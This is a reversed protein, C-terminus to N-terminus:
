AAVAALSGPPLKYVQMLEDVARDVGGLGPEPQPYSHYESESVLDNVLSKMDAHLHLQGPAAYMSLEPAGGRALAFTPKGLLLGEFITSPCPDEWVSPVVIADASAANEMTAEPSCWGLFRIQEGEFEKKLRAASDGDGAIAVRMNAPIRPALERLFPEIGKSATLKGAIFVNLHPSRQRLSAAQRAREVAQSDIFNHIVKGWTGPGVARAFNRHLLDSVFVTKHRRYGEATEQRLKSVAFSSVLKQAANPKERLCGACAAPDTNECIQGKHFRMSIICDGGQDHRTQIFNVHKPIHLAVNPHHGHYHVVDYRPAHRMIIRAFRRAVWLRRPPMFAGLALEKWGYLHGDLEGYFRGGFEGESGAASLPQQANGLIDVEHGARVLARALNLAHKALGGMKPAPIDESVILIRM